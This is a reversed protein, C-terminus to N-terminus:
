PKGARFMRIVELRSHLNLKQLVLHVYNKVTQPQLYLRQAIEQNSLGEVLLQLIQEERPTLAEVPPVPEGAQLRAVYSFLTTVVRPSVPPIGDALSHVAAVLDDASTGQLVCGAAGARVCEVIAQDDDAVGWILIKGGPVRQRLAALVARGDAKHTALDYLLVHEEAIPATLAERGSGFTAVVRVGPRQGLLGAVADRILPSAHIIGVTMARVLGQEYGYRRRM